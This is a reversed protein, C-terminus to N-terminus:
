VGLLNWRGGSANNPARWIRWTPLILTLSRPFVKQSNTFLLLFNLQTQILHCARLNQICSDSAWHSEDMLFASKQTQFFLLNLSESSSSLHPSDPSLPFFKLFDLLEPAETLRLATLLFNRQDYVVFCFWKSVGHFLTRRSFSVSRCSTLFNGANLSIV